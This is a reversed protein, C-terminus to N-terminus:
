VQATSIRSLFAGADIGQVLFKSMFSMDFLAVNERCSKHEAEWLNFWHERGFSESVVVPEVGQPAFWAASEWGSVDRFYAGAAALRYHLASQKANRCTVPQHDPYHVRYTDGLVEGVRKERYRRNNQYRQFRNANICTVDVDNPAHGHKIWRALIQGMGGGSLIGLSNLGAAVYYNRLEHSEGIIPSGDPTFSEPGCFLTKIGVDQVVPVLKMAEEVYPLMRDWDPQLEGFSFDDPIGESKWSAGEREFLGLMLGEGEPRVYVCRSSDEIVPWNRDVGPVAETILYYHEAAQNPITHVGCAEGFQRAWMGACNVVADAQIHGGDQLRVGTVRPPGVSGARTTVGAVPTQEVITVGRQRAGQMLAVTVDTPNARGDTPVYFGALVDATDCLPFRERVEEPSIEHVNVGCFRNFAAIRRYAELRAADCALEIFGIEQYGTSLGTEAPLIDRYLTQTYQRAWTSTRSLSGFSNMLGAAHWTTGSTIRDRELLVVNPVDLAALHYAVSAGM